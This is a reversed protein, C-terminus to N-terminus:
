GECVRGDSIEGLLTYLAVFSSAAFERVRGEMAPLRAGRVWDSWMGWM